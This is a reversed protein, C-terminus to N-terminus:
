IILEKVIQSTMSLESFRQNCDVYRRRQPPPRHGAENQLIGVRVVTEEKQLVELFKWFVPHCTSVHAQFGRHVEQLMSLSDGLM